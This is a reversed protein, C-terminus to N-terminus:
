NRAFPTVTLSDPEGRSVFTGTYRVEQPQYDPGVIASLLAPVRCWTLLWWIRVSRQHICISEIRIRRRGVRNDQYLRGRRKTPPDVHVLM